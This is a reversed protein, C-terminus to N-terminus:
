VFIESFKEAFCILGKVAEYQERNLKLEFDMEKGEM